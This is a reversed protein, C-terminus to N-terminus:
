GRKVVRADVVVHSVGPSYSKVERMGLIVVEGDSFASMVREVPRDPLLECPCTEHYQVLGGSKVLRFATDLYEHTTKVYGMLIRDAISEGELSRNDGLFPVVIGEVGNLEINEVLYHHSLPNLECAIVKSPRQHVAMPIAFYGIGAFMDVVCEGDCRTRAMRMREDVNGSSFMLRSVDFRFLVGNERHVTVTDTGFLLRVLPTRLEGKVGGEDRLVSKAQLVSAYSAAIRDEYDDLQEPLRLVLVDGFLEWKEPLLRGLDDPLAAAERIRDIPDDRCLRPPFEHDVTSAEFGALLEAGVTGLTPILVFGDDDIIARTIDVASASALRRRMKEAQDRRVRVGKVSICRLSGYFHNALLYRVERWFGYLEELNEESLIFRPQSAKGNMASTM